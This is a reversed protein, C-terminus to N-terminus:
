RKYTQLLGKNVNFINSM